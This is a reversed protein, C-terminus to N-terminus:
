GEKSDPGNSQEKRTLKLERIASMSFKLLERGEYLSISVLGDRINVVFIGDSLHRTEGDVFNICIDNVTNEIKIIKASM